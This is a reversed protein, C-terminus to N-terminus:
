NKEPMGSTEGSKVFYTSWARALAQRTMAPQESRYKAYDIVQGLLDRPHCALM